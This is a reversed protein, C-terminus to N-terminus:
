RSKKPEDHRALKALHALLEEESAMRALYFCIM